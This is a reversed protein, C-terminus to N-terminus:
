AHLWFGFAGFQRATWWRRSFYAENRGGAQSQLPATVSGASRLALQTPTEPVVACIHGPQNLDTRQACIIGVQGGNVAQQLEDLSITRRWGFDTGFEELWTHLSNANLEAVTTGYQAPVAEGHALRVLAKRMWWVRPLYAGALHCYDHAYINCYTTRPGRQYRASREVALYQILQGLQVTRAVADGATRHPAAPDNLSYARGGTNTLRIATKTTLHAEPITPLVTPPTPVAPATVARVVSVHLYGPVATGQLDAMVALWGNVAADEARVLQGQKLRTLETQKAVRPASRLNAELPVIEYVKGM